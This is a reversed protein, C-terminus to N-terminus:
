PKRIGRYIVAIGLTLPRLTTQEFGANELMQGLFSTVTTKGNTGTVAIMPADVHQAALEMEGMVPIQKQLAARIIPTDLPAGPSLVIADACLFTEEHHGGTELTVGLTHLEKLCEPDLQSREKIDSLTVKAGEEALWRAAWYGSTGLGVVLFKSTPINLQSKPTQANDM